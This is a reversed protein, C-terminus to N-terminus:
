LVKVSAKAAIVTVNDNMHFNTRKFDSYVAGIMNIM